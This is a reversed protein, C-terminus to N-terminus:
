DSIDLAQPSVLLRYFHSERVVFGDRELEDVARTVTERASAVMEALLDHTIPFELRIGDPHVRGFERALQVLKWRVRDVHRVYALYSLADQRLRLATELGRFLTRAVGPIALLGELSDLPLVTVSSDTLANLHEHDGPPLLISGPGAEAVVVQRVSRSLARIVLFGSEVILAEARGPDRIPRRSGAPLFQASCSELIASAPKREKEELGDLLRSDANPLFQGERKM